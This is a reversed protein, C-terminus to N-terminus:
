IAFAGTLRAWQVVLVEAAVADDYERFAALPGALEWEFSTHPMDEAEAHSLAASVLAGPVLEGACEGLLLKIQWRQTTEDFVIDSVREIRANGMDRLDIGTGKFQLSEVGGFPDISILQTKM